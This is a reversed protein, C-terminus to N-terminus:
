RKVDFRVMMDHDEHILNHCHMVYRGEFDRFRLYVRVDEGPNLVFVDKRGQEHPPPPKGNRSLIRGEEMHIHVPHHWSGKGRLRWIEATGAKVIAAPRTDDFIKGNVTWVDNERDFEWTRERVVESQPIEPLDRLRDPVQSADAVPPDADIDFRLIQTGAARLLGDSGRVNVAAGEPGRGDTQILRNVLYLRTGIPWASFDVVIDGREAPALALKRQNRLPAPLLNGDNAIHAFGQNAGDASCLYFEYFRTVSANLLRLRYKRREVRHFPYAKGNVCFLNGLHGDNDFQDFQLYGSADIRPDNVLLPIDYRNVGSPLRLAAPSPDAENGSDVADYLLYFGALGRYVNPATFFLCHDHYWLTGLSERPDGDTASYRADEEGAYCHPYHHDRFQGPPAGALRPYFDGPYGDSASASHLNHLHTSIQPSGPGNADPLLNNRIRVTTPVGYREVFTPGPFVRDYGWITQTPLEPHFSHQGAGVDLEYVKQPLHRAWKQHGEREAEGLVALEGPPPSLAAAPQKVLLMPLATVFPTVRRPRPPDKAQAPSTAQTATLAAATAALGAQLSRRRAPDTPSSPHSSPM